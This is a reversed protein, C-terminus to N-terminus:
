TGKPALCFFRETEGDLIQEDPEWELRFPSGTRQGQVIIKDLKGYALARGEGYWSFTRQTGSEDTVGLSIEGEEAQCHVVNAFRGADVRPGQTWLQSVGDERDWSQALALLLQLVSSKGASNPGFLVTIRPALPIKVGDAGFCRWGKIELGKVRM